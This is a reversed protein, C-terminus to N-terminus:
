KRTESPRLVKIFTDIAERMQESGTKDEDGILVKTVAERWDDTEPQYSIENAYAKFTRAIAHKRRDDDLAAKEDLYIEVLRHMDYGDLVFGALIKIRDEFPILSAEHSGHEFFAKQKISGDAYRAQPYKSGLGDFPNDTRKM